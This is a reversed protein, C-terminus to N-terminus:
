PGHIEFNTFAVQSQDQKNVIDVGLGIAGPAMDESLSWVVQDNILYVFDSGISRVAIRNVQGPQTLIAPSTQIIHQYIGTGYVVLVRFVGDSQIGFFGYDDNVQRFVLGYAYDGGEGGGMFQVDVAAYFDSMSPANDPIRNLYCNGQKPQVTWLYQEDTIASTVILFSDQQVGVPWNLRNDAFSDTLQVPWDAQAAMMAEATAQNAASETAAQEAQITAVVAADATAQQSDATAQADLTAQARRTAQSQAGQTADAQAPSLTPAPVPPPTLRFSPGGEAVVLADLTWTGEKLFAAGNSDSMVDIRGSKRSGHVPISYNASCSGGGCSIEGGIPWWSPVIPGGLAELVAPDQNAAELAQRYSGSLRFPAGFVMALIFGVFGIVALTIVAATICGATKVTRKVEPTIMPQSPTLREVAEEGPTSTVYQTVNTLSVPKGAELQDIAEQAKTLSVDFIERFLRVAEDKKGDKLLQKVESLRGIQAFDMSDMLDAASGNVTVPQGAELAEVADKAEKLGVNFLARFRKIAEIKQGSAALQRIEALAEASPAGTEPYPPVASATGPMARARMEEPIIITSGCFQCTISTEPGGDYSATAGCHPCEFVQIQPM